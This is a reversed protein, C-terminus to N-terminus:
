RQDLPVSFGDRPSPPNKGRLWDAVFRAAEAIALGGLGVTSRGYQAIWRQHAGGLALVEAELRSALSEALGNAVAAPV